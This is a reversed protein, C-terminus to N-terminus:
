VVVLTEDAMQLMLLLLCYRQFYFKKKNNSQSLSLLHRSHTLSANSSGKEM